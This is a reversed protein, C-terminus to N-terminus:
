TMSSLVENKLSKSNGCDLWMTKIVPPISQGAMKRYFVGWDNKDPTARAALNDRASQIINKATPSLDPCADDGDGQPNDDDDDGSAPYTQDGGSAPCSTPTIKLAMLDPINCMSPLVYAGGEDGQHGDPVAVFLM